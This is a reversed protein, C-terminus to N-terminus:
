QLRMRGVQGSQRECAVDVASTKRQSADPLPSLVKGICGIGRGSATLLLGVLSPPPLPPHVPSAPPLVFPIVPLM